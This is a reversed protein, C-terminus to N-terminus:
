SAATQATRRRRRRQSAYMTGGAVAALGLGGGVPAMPTGASSCPNLTEEFTVSGYGASTATVYFTLPNTLVPALGDSAPPPPIFGYNHNPTTSIISVGAQAIGDIDGTPTEISSGVVATPVGGPYATGFLYVYSTAGHGTITWDVPTQVPFTKGGADLDQVLLAFPFIGDCQQTSQHNGGATNTPDPSPHTCIAITASAGGTNDACPNPSPTTGAVEAGAPVATTLGTVFLAM